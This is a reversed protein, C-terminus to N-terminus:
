WQSGKKTFSSIAQINIDKYTGFDPDIGPEYLIASLVVYYNDGESLVTFDPKSGNAGNIGAKIEFSNEDPQINGSVFAPRNMDIDGDAEPYLEVRYRLRESMSQDINEMEGWKVVVKDSGISHTLEINYYNLHDINEDYVMDSLKVKSKGFSLCFRIKKEVSGSLDLYDGSADIDKEDQVYVGNVETLSVAREPFLAKVAGIDRGSVRYGYRRKKQYGNDLLYENVVFADASLGYIFDYSSYFERFSNNGVYFKLKYEHSDEEVIRWQEASGGIVVSLYEGEMKWQGVVEETKGGMNMSVISGNRSFEYAVLDDDAIYNDDLAFNSYWYGKTLVDSTLEFDTDNNNDGGSCACFLLSLLVLSRIIRIM